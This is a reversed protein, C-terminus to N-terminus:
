RSINTLVKGTKILAKYSSMPSNYNILPHINNVYEEMNNHNIGFHAFDVKLANLIVIEGISRSNSYEIKKTPIGEFNVNKPFVKKAIWLARRLHYPDTIVGINDPMYDLEEKIKERSFYFNTITDISQDEIIINHTKKIKNEIYDRMIISQAIKNNAGKGSLVLNLGQNIGPFLKATYIATKSRSKTSDEGGLVIVTNTYKKELYHM